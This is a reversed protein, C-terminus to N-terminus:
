LAPDLQYRVAARQQEIQALACASSLPQTAVIVTGTNAPGPRSAAGVLLPHDPSDVIVVQCPYPM